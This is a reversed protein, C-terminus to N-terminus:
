VRVGVRKVLAGRALAFTICNKSLNFAGEARMRGCGGADGLRPMTPAVIAKRASAGGQRKEARMWGVDRAGMRRYKALM